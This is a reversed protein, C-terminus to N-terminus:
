QQDAKVVDVLRDLDARDYLLRRGLLKVPQLKGAVTLNYITRASVGLYAGADQKNM